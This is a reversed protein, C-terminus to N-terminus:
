RSRESKSGLVGQATEQKKDNSVKGAWEDLISRVIKIINKARDESSPSISVALKIEDLASKQADIQYEMELIKSQVDDSTEGSKLKSIGEELASIKDKLIRNEREKELISAHYDRKMSITVEEIKNKLSSRDKSLIGKAERNYIKSIYGSKIPKHNYTVNRAELMLAIHEQVPKKNRERIYAYGYDVLFKVLPTDNSKPFDTDQLNDLDLLVDKLPREKTVEGAPEECDESSRVNELRETLIVGHYDNKKM